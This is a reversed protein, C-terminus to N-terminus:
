SCLFEMIWEVVGGLDPRKQFFTDVKILELFEHFNDDSKEPKMESVINTSPLDESEAFEL